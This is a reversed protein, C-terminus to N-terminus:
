SVSAHQIQIAPDTGQQPCSDVDLQMYIAIDHCIEALVQWIIVNVQWIKIDDKWIKINVQWIKMNVQWKNM